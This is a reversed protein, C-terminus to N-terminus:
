RRYPTPGAASGAFRDGHYINFELTESNLVLEELLEGLRADWQARSWDALARFQVLILIRHRDDSGFVNSEVVGPLDAGTIQMFTAIEGYLRDFGAPEVEILRMVFIPTNGPAIHSTLPVKPIEAKERVIVVPLPSIRLVGEAVGGMFLRKFGSIGHAGVVISEAGVDGAIEVLKEAVEGVEVRGEAEVGRHSARSVAEAIVVGAEARAAELASRDRDGLAQHGLLAIPDVISCVVLTASDAKALAIARDMAESACTSGDLAVLLRRPM